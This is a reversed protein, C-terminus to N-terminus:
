HMDEMTTPDGSFYQYGYLRGIDGTGGGRGVLMYLQYLQKIILTFEWNLSAIPKHYFNNRMNFSWWRVYWSQLEQNM